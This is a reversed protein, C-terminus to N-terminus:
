HVRQNEVMNRYIDKLHDDDSGFVLSIGTGKQGAKVIVQDVLDAPPETTIATFKDKLLDECILATMRDIGFKDYPMIFPREGADRQGEARKSIANYILSRIMPNSLPREAVRVSGSYFDRMRQRLMVIQEDDARMSTFEKLLVDVTTDELDMPVVAFGERTLAGVVAAADGQREAYELAMVYLALADEARASNQAKWMAKSIVEIGREAM